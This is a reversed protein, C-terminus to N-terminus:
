QIFYTEIVTIVRLCCAHKMQEGLEHKKKKKQQYSFPRNFKTLSYLKNVPNVISAKGKLSRLGCNIPRM